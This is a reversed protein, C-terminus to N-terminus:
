NAQRHNLALSVLRRMLDPLTEGKARVAMPVLSHATMGPLTNVELCIFEDKDNLLFDIRAFGSCGLATFAKVASEQIRGAVREAIPAPCLYDTMEDTYKNTYDYFGVRPRIEIIPYPEGDIVTCTLERGDFLKEVMADDDQERVAEFAKGLEEVTHVKSLGVTSGGHLPKVVVPLGITDVISPTYKDAAKLEALPVVVNDAVPVGATRMLQCALAKNMALGSALSRSGVYPVGVWELLSQVTGDEGRGGHFIPFIVEPKWQAIADLLGRVASPDFERQNRPPPAEVGIADPALRENSPHIKGPQETDYKAVEYGAETLWQGVLDGSSWSVVREASEGGCLVLVRM